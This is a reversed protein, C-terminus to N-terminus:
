TIGRTYEKISYGYEPSGSVEDCSMDDRINPRVSMQTYIGGVGYHWKTMKSRIDDTDAQCSSKLEDTMVYYDNKDCKCM